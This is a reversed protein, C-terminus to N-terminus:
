GKLSGIMIGQVFYRQLLPYLLLVPLSSIIIVGFRVLNAIKDQIGLSEIDELTSQVQESKVLIDRLILQLPYYKSDNLFILGKFFSNWEV